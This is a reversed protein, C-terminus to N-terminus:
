VGTKDKSNNSYSKLVSETWLSTNWSVLYTHKWLVIRKYGCWYTKVGISNWIGAEMGQLLWNLIIRVRCSPTSITRGLWSLMIYENNWCTVLMTLLAHAPKELPHQLNQIRINEVTSHWYHDLITYRKAHLLDNINYQKKATFKQHCILPTRLFSESIALLCIGYTMAPCLYERMLM